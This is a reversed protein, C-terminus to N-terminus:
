NRSGNCLPFEDGFGDQVRTPIENRSKDLFDIVMPPPMMTQDKIFAHCMAMNLNSLVYVTNKNM